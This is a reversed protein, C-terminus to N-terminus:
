QLRLRAALAAGDTEAPLTGLVHGWDGALRSACFADAARADAHRLMLSAQLATAALEVLRRARAELRGRDAFERELRALAAKLAPHEPAAARIEALLARLSDPEREV